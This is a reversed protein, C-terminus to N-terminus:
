DNIEAGCRACMCRNAEWGFATIDVVDHGHEACHRRARVRDMIRSRPQWNTGVYGGRLVHAALRELRSISIYDFAYAERIRLLENVATGVLTRFLSGLCAM